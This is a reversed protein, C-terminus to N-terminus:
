PVYGRDCSPVVLLERAPAHLQPCLLPPDLLNSATYPLTSPESRQPVFPRSVTSPDPLQPPFDLTDTTIDSTHIHIRTHPAPQEHHRLTFHPVHRGEVRGVEAVGADEGEVLRSSNSSPHHETV